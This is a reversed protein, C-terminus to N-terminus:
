SPQLFVSTLSSGQIKISKVTKKDIKLLHSTCCCDSSGFGNVIPEAGRKVLKRTLTCELDKETIYYMIKPIKVCKSSLLYDIHWHLTKETRLHRNIRAKLGGAGRASGVYAYKGKPLTKEGLAGIEKNIM